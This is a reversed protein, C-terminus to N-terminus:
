EQWLAAIESKVRAHATALQQVRASDGYVSPMALEAELSSQEGELEELRALIRKEENARSRAARMQERREDEARRADEKRREDDKPRVATRYGPLPRGERQLRDVYDTFNGAYSRTAGGHDVELVRTAVADILFRDHTVVVLTGDYNQLAEILV